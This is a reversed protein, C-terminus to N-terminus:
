GDTHRIALLVNHYHKM